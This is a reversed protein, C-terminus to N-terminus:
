AQQDILDEFWALVASRPYLVRRGVRVGRPGVGVRRWYRVTAVNTRCVTAFEELTFFHPDAEMATHEERSDTSM